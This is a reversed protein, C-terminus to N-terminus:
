SRKVLPIFVFATVLGYIVHGMLSLWQTSGIVFVMQSMGLLLPMLILAGLVWWVMGNVIGGILATTANVPFRGIVLGYVAGIFASIAMHVIFGVIANEVGVLMGVMPLMGMMAMMMGFVLGGTLGAIIGSTILKGASKSVEQDMTAATM